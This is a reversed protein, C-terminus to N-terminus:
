GIHEAVPVCEDVTKGRAVEIFMIEVKPEARKIRDEIELISNEIDGTHL